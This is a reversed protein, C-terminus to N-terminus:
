GDSETMALFSLSSAIEIAFSIAESRECHRSLPVDCKEDERVSPQM